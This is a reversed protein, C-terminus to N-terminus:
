KEFQEKVYFEDTDMALMDDCGNEEIKQRGVDRKLLENFFQDAIQPVSSTVGTSDSYPSIM